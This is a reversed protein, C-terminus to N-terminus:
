VHNRLTQAACKVAHPYRVVARLHWVWLSRRSAVAAGQWFISGQSIQTQRRWDQRIVIYIKM